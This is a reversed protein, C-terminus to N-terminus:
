SVEGHAKMIAFPVDDTVTLKLTFERAQGLKRWTVRRIYDGTLGLGRTLANGYEATNRSVQLSILPEDSTVGVTGVECDIWFSQLRIRRGNDHLPASIATREMLVGADTNKSTDLTVIGADSLYYDVERGSGGILTWDNEEWTRARNWLGTAINYQITAYGPLTLTYFKHGKVTYIFARADSISTAQSILDEIEHTSIRAPRYGDARYIINDDGLWFLTNDDAAVSFAAACGRAITTNPVFPFDQNGANRWVETTRTGFFWIEDKEVFVRLIPDSSYEATAFDLADWSTLDNLASIYFRGAGPENYVGFGSLFDLTGVDSPTVVPALLSGDWHYATEGDSILVNDNDDTIMTVPGINTNILGLLTATSGDFRYFGDRAVFYHGHTFRAIGRKFDTQAARLTLGPRQRRVVRSTGSVTPEVYMNILTELGNQRIGGRGEQIAFPLEIM